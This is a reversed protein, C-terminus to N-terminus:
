SFFVRKLLRLLFPASSLFLNFHSMSLWAYVGHLMRVMTHSHTLLGWGAARQGFIDTRTVPGPYQVGSGGGGGAGFAEVTLTVLFSIKHM